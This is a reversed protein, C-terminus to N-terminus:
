NETKLRKSKLAKPSEHKDAQKYESAFKLRVGQGRFSWGGATKWPHSSGVPNRWTLDPFPRCFSANEGTLGRRGAAM